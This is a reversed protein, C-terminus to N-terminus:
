NTFLLNKWTTSVASDYVKRLNTVAVNATDGVTMDQEFTPDTLVPQGLLITFGDATAARALTDTDEMQEADSHDVAYETRQRTVRHGMEDVQTSVAATPKHDYWGAQKKGDKKRKTSTSSSSSM